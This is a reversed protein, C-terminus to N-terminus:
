GNCDETISAPTIVGVVSRRGTVVRRWRAGLDARAAHKFPRTRM